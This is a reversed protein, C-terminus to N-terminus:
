LDASLAMGGYLAESKDTCKRLDSDIIQMWGISPTLTLGEGLVIPMEVGLVLDVFGDGVDEFCGEIYNSDGYGVAASCDLVLGEDNVSWPLDFGHGIGANTYTGGVEDIDWVLELSPNLMVDFAAAGYVEQTDSVHWRPFTYYVYGLACETQPLSFGYEVTWNTETLSFASFNDDTLDV